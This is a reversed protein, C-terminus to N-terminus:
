RHELDERGRAENPAELEQQLVLGLFIFLQFIPVQPKLKNQTKKKLRCVFQTLRAELWLNRIDYLFSIILIGVSKM